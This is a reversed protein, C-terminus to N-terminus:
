ELLHHFALTESLQFPPPTISLFFGLMKKSTVQSYSIVTWRETKKPSTNIHLRLKYGAMPTWRSIKNESYPEQFMDDELLLYLEQRGLYKKNTPLQRNVGCKRGAFQLTRNTRNIIRWGPPARDDMERKVWFIISFPRQLFTSYRPRLDAASRPKCFRM